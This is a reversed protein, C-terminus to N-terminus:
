RPPVYNKTKTKKRYQRKFALGIGQVVGGTMKTIPIKSIPHVIQGLQRRVEIRRLEVEQTALIVLTLWQRGPM